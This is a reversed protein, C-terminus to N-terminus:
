VDRRTGLTDMWFEPVLVWKLGENMLVQLSENPSLTPYTVRSKLDGMIEDVRYYCPNCVESFTEVFTHLTNTDCKKCKPV